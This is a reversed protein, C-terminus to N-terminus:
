LNDLVARTTAIVMLFMAAFYNEVDDSLDPFITVRGPGATLLGLGAGDKLLQNVHARSCFSASALASRSVACAELLHSADDRQLAILHALMRTGGDRGHFLQAPRQVPFLDTRSAWARAVAAAVRRLVAPDDLRDIRRAVDPALAGAVGTLLRLGDDMVARFRAETSLRTSGGLPAGAPELRVLDNAVARRLYLRARGRSVEGRRVPSGAMFAGVTLPGVTEMLYLAGSLSSRGIDSLM